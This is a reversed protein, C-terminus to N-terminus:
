VHRLSFCFVWIVGGGGGSCHSSTILSVADCIHRHRAQMGVVAKERSEPNRLQAKLQATGNVGTVAVQSVVKSFLGRNTWTLSLSWYHYVPWALSHLLARPLGFHFVLWELESCLCLTPPSHMPIETPAHTHPPEPLSADIWKFFFSNVWICLVFKWSSSM